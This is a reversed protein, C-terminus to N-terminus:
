GDRQSLWRLLTAFLTDPDFPKILFDNMGAALCRAKDEAFANATMAIIPTELYGPMQRIQRTAELGDVNPMQMDMLIAAYSTKQALSIADAGDEATDVELGAAKLQIQAIERNIPEDDVVLIRSGAHHQRICTMTDGQIGAEKVIVEDGKKLRATFWFTSGVGPTSEAGADGGMLEALRRTIALGLGTGGYKRTTSHDAQEFASFIRQMAEATVGIGTDTVEFRVVVEDATEEQKRVRLTVAGKETFKVANTAYNLLAQQLRTPDGYLNPPVPENKVLLQIGKAKCRDSLLSIVNKLLSSVTVPAEELMFKGAEIKSLDLIDNIIGLLHRSASDIKDLREAQQPTVGEQRLISAMGLIGNMPTRIEHSMNALFASKALNANEAQRQAAVLEQTRSEVLEELHLRHEALENGLRKKETIDEKVAVYHSVTGDAQRLPTIIAFELYESGDKRRNHFEGQWRRGQNLAERLAVTTEAPTKGSNLFRPNRGIVEERSYGTTQVFAENVYEIESDISTIVISEPSQEVALSLKRLQIEAAKRETIDRMVVQIAPEGDYIIPTNKVEADIIAGDLKLFKEEIMPMATDHDAASRARAMVVQHFDPHVLDLIPKGVLDQASRAGFVKITAPNVYLLKGGRHVAIPEPSWEILTRYRDESAILLRHTRGLVLLPLGMGLVAAFGIEFVLAYTQVPSVMTMFSQDAPAVLLTLVARGSLFFATALYALAVFWRVVRDGSDRTRLLVIAGPFRIAAIAASIVVIRASLDPTVYTFYCFAAATGAALFWYWPGESAKGAFTRNGLYLWASGMVLMTNAVVISLLDPVIDRLAVLVFGIGNATAGAAWLRLSPNAAVTRNVLQLGLALLLSSVMALFSLTRIDLSILSSFHM